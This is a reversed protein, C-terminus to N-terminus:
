ARCCRARRPRGSAGAPRAARRRQARNRVQRHDAGRSALSVATAQRTASSVRSRGTRARASGGPRASARDCGSRARGVAQAAAGVHQRSAGDPLGCSIRIALPESTPRITAAARAAQRAFPMATRQTDIGLQSSKSASGAASRSARAAALPARAAPRRPRRRRLAPMAVDAIRAVHEADLAEACRRRAVHRQALVAEGDVVDAPARPREDCSIDQPYKSRAPIPSDRHIECCVVAM